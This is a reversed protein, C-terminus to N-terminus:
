RQDFVKIRESEILKRFEENIEKKPQIQSKRKSNVVVSRRHM